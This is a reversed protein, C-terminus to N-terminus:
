PRTAYIREAGPRTHALAADGSRRAPDAAPEPLDILDYLAAVGRATASGPEFFMAAALRQREASLEQPRARAARAAGRLEDVSSVM